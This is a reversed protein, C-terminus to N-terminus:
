IFCERVILELEVKELSNKLSFLTIKSNAFYKDNPNSFTTVMQYNKNVLATLAIQKNTASYEIGKHLILTNAEQSSAISHIIDAFKAFFLELIAPDIGQELQLIKQELTSSAKARDGAWNVRIEEQGDLPINMVFIWQKEGLDIQDEYSLIHKSQNVQLRGNGESSLCIKKLENIPINSVRNIKFLSCGEFLIFLLLVLIKKM